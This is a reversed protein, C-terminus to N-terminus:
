PSPSGATLLLCGAAGLARAKLAEYQGGPEAVGLSSEPGGVKGGLVIHTQLWHASHAKQLVGPMQGSNKLVDQRDKTWDPLM